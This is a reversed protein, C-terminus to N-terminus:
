KIRFLAQEFHYTHTSNIYLPSWFEDLNFDSIGNCDTHKLKNGGYRNVSYFMGNVKTNIINSYYEQTKKPMEGLSATNIALDVSNLALKKIKSPSILVIDYKILQNKDSLIQDLNHTNARLFNAKPFARSLFADALYLIEPLDVLICTTRNNLLKLYRLLGGYAGGIDLVIKHGNCFGGLNKYAKLIQSSYYAHKLTRENLRQGRYVLCRNGGYSFDSVWTLISPNIRKALHHYQNVVHLSNILNIKKPRNVPWLRNNDNIIMAQNSTSSRFNSVLKILKEPNYEDLGFDKVFNTRNEIWWKSEKLDPNSLELNCSTKYAFYALYIQNEQWEKSYSNLNSIRTYKWKFSFKCGKKLDFNSNSPNIDKLEELYIDKDWFRNFLLLSFTNRLNLIALGFQNFFKLKFNPEKLLFERESFPRSKEIYSSRKIYSILSEIKAAPRHYSYKIYWHLNKLFRM